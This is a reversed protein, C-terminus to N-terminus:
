KWRGNIVDTSNGGIASRFTGCLTAHRICRVVSIFCNRATGFGCHRSLGRAATPSISAGAHLRLGRREVDGLLETCIEHNETAGECFGLVQKYGTINIGLGVIFVRGGRHVSDLFIAFPEFGSVDRERFQELRQASAQVLHRSVAAQASVGLRENADEIIWAYRRGSMGARWQELLQESFVDPKKL